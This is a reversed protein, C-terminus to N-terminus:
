SLCRFFSVSPSLLFFGLQQFIGLEGLLLDLSGWFETPTVWTSPLMVNDQFLIFLHWPSSNNLAAKAFWVLAHLIPSPFPPPFSYVLFNNKIAYACSSPKRSFFRVKECSIPCRLTAPNQTLHILKFHVICLCYCEQYRLTPTKLTSILVGGQPAKWFCSPPVPCCNEEATPEM